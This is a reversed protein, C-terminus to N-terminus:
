SQMRGSRTRPGRHTMIGNGGRLAMIAGSRNLEVQHPFNTSVKRVTVTTLQANCYFPKADTLLKRVKSWAGDAGVVFDYIATGNAGLDLTIETAATTANRTDRVSTIKHNWKVCDSPLKEVLMNM